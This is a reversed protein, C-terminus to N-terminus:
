SVPAALQKIGKLVILGKVLRSNTRNLFFLKPDNYSVSPKTPIVELSASTLVDQLPFTLNEAGCVTCWPSRQWHFCAIKGVFPLFPDRIM